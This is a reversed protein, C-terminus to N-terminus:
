QPLGPCVLDTEVEVVVLALVLQGRRPSWWVWIWAWSRVLKVFAVAVFLGCICVLGVVVEVVVDDVVDLEVVLVLLVDLM